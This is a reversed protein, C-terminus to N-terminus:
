STPSSLFDGVVELFRPWASERGTLLHNTSELPVLRGDPILSALEVANSFPVRVEDRSHLILTPCSVQRAAETVDITAFAELFRVANEPSCTRRQLEDFADWEEITGLPMFQRTFVHRFAPNDRGWGVRALELNLNAENREAESVARVLRGRPYSGYLILKSVREPYRTAYAIAVAGGQSIGLLPFRDLSLADVVTALDDVWADFEFREVDWDSLGCGREDYRVLTHNASLGENWHRWVLSDWDHDLHSMWTAAKVLPPGSGSLAYALRTGDPSTCFRIRQELRGSSQAAARPLSQQLVAVELDRLEASPDVGLDEVLRTRLASFALLADAQRKEAYLARMLTAVPQERYPNARVHPELLAIADRNRGLDVLTEALLEALGLRMETLRRREGEVDVHDLGTYPRGRWIQLASKALDVRTEAEATKAADVLDEFRAADVHGDPCGLRYGDDVTAVIIPDRLLRRLRSINTQVAAAPDAPLNDGWVMEAIREASVVANRHLALVELVQRVRRSPVDVNNGAETLTLSGLLALDM